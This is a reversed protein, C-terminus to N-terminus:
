QKAFPVAAQQDDAEIKLVYYGPVLQATAISAEGNTIEVSHRSVVSGTLNFITFRCSSSLANLRLHLVDSAPNPYASIQLARVTAV